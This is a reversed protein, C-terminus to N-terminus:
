EASRDSFKRWNIILIVLFTMMPASPEFDLSGGQFLPKQGLCVAFDYGM